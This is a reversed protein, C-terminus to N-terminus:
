ALIALDRKVEATIFAKQDIRHVSNAEPPMKKQVGATIPYVDVEQTTATYADDVDLGWRTCLFGQTGRVLTQRAEDELVVTNFVYRIDLSETVRGPQEFDQKSCLRSDTVVAEETAPNWGDATLYCSLDVGGNLEAITPAGTPSAITEVFTVRLTGDSPMSAPIDAM